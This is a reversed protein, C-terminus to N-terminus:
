FLFPIFMRTHEMYERYSAGFYDINEIEEAKATVVLFVTAALVLGSGIWSFHKLFAGWALLMLSCYLPHRIYGYVGSTVLQTTKEIGMLPVEGSRWLSNILLLAVICEWAFFRFFGHSRPRLLSSRSLYALAISASVFIILRTM